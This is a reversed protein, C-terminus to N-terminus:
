IKEHPSPKAEELGERYEGPTTGTLRRFYKSFFSPNPFCLEDAIQAVPKDTHKLEVKIRLVLARDIWEKATTGSTQRIITGLYRETLCMKEAYFAIQHERRCHQNVLFIFRDFITQERTQSRQLLDAHQRYLGDYHHMQAAVLSAVTQRNYRPQRVVHWLTDVINRATTIDAEAVPVQFDRVQGNFASPLLGPAFPMSFENSLGFGFIKLDPSISIPNIISGPGLFVLMGARLTKDVLNLNIRIEGQMIIGLRYDDITFPPQQAMILRFVSPHGYVIVLEHNIFVHERLTPIHPALIDRMRSFNMLKPQKEM